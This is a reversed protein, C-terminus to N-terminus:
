HHLVDEFARLWARSQRRRRDAKAHMNILVTLFIAGLAFILVGTVVRIWIDQSVYFIGSVSALAFLSGVWGWAPSLDVAEWSRLGTLVALRVDPRRRTGRVFSDVDPVTPWRNLDPWHQTAWDPLEDPHGLDPEKDRM